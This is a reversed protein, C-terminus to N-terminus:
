ALETATVVKTTPNISFYNIKGTASNTVFKGSNEPVLMATIQDPTMFPAQVGNIIVTKFWGDLTQLYKHIKGVDASTPVSPKDM